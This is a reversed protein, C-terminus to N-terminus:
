PIICSFADLASGRGNLHRAADIGRTGLLVRWRPVPTLRKPQLRQSQDLTVTAMAVRTEWAIRDSVSAGRPARPLSRTSGHCGPPMWSSRKTREARALLRSAPLKEYRRMYGASWPDPVVGEMGRHTTQRKPPLTRERETSGTHSYSLELLVFKQKTIMKAGFVLCGYLQRTTTM